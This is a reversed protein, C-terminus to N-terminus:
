KGHTTHDYISACVCVCVCVKYVRSPVSMMFM